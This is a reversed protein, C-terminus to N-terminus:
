DNKIRENTMFTLGSTDEGYRWGAKKMIDYMRRSPTPIRIPVGFRELAKILARFHGTHEKMGVTEIASIMIGYGKVITLYSCRAFKDSTFGIIKGISSDVEITADDRMLRDILEQKM